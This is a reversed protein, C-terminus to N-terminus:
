YKGEFKLEGRYDYEKVKGNGNILEYIINGNEDYGKGNWKKGYLYEGEYEVKENRYNKGKLQHGYLYEGEFELKGNYYYEKGKGNKQGNLYECEFQLTGDDDDYDYYEKGKGNREENTYEGEFKLKGTYGNYEKGKGNRKGNLYEGDFKLKGKSNYEKVKGNGDKLEYINNNFIDYGKGNWKLDNLYEGEFKLKGSDYYEKGKGNKKGNFYEGEFKLKGDDYYEKGKGNKKGNIYEGEFILTNKGLIYESGKGNKKGKKYRKSIAKYDEINVGIKEQLQKNYIIIKLKKSQEIYSLIIEFNYLSKINRILNINTKRERLNSMKEEM